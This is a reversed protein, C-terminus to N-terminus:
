RLLGNWNVHHYFLAQSFFFRSFAHKKANKYRTRCCDQCFFVQITMASLRAYGGIMPNSSTHPQTYPEHFTSIKQLSNLSLSFHDLQRPQTVHITVEELEFVHFSTKQYLFWLGIMLTHSLQPHLPRKSRFSSSLAAFPPRKSWRKSSKAVGM